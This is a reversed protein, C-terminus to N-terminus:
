RDASPRYGLRPGFKRGGRLRILDDEYRKLARQLEEITMLQISRSGISYEIIDSTESLKCRIVDRIIYIMVWAHAIRSSVPDSTRMVTIAGRFITLSRRVSDRTWSGRVRYAYAGPDWGATGVDFRYAEDAITAPFSREPDLSLDELVLSFFVEFADPPDAVEDFVGDTYAPVDVLPAISLLTDGIEVTAPFKRKFNNSAM